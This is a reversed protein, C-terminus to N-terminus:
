ADHSPDPPHDAASSSLGSAKATRSNAAATPGAAWDPCFRGLLFKSLAPLTYIPIQAFAVYAAFDPGALGTLIGLMLGMNRNGSLLGMTLARRSDWWCRFILASVAQGLLNFLCAAALLPLARNPARRIVINAGDMLAVALLLLLGVMAADIIPRHRVLGKVGLRWRGITALTIPLGVMLLVRPVITFVGGPFASLGGLGVVTALGLPFLLSSVVTVVVALTFDLGLILALAPAAMLPPTLANLLLGEGVGGTLWGAKQAAMALVPGAVLVWALGVLSSTPRALSLRLAALDLRLLAGTLLLLVAPQILPACAAAAAPWALGITVAVAMASTSHRTLGAILGM